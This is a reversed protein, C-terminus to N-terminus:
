VISWSSGDTIEVTVGDAISIPGFSGANRNATITYDQSVTITNEWFVDNIATGAPGQPGLNASVQWTTGDYILTVKLQNINLLLNDAIGEITKGNRLVTLNNTLWNGADQLEIIDGTSPSIPLTVNLAGGSTNILYGTNSVLTTATSIAVWPKGAPGVSGTYGIPAKATILDTALIAM